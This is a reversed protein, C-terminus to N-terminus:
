DRNDFSKAPAAMAAVNIEPRENAKNVLFMVREGERGLAGDCDHLPVLAINIRSYTAM